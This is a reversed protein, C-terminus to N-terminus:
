RSAHRETREEVARRNDLIESITRVWISFAVLACATVILAGVSLGAVLASLHFRPDSRKRNTANM